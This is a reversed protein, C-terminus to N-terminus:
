DQNPNGNDGHSSAPCCGPLCPAPFALLELDKESPVCSFVLMRLCSPSFEDLGCGCHCVEELLAVGVGDIHCRRITGSGPGLINLGGCAWLQLGPFILEEPAKTVLVYPNV